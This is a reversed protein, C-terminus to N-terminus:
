QRARGASARPKRPEPPAGNEEHLQREVEAVFLAKRAKRAVKAPPQPPLDPAPLFGTTRLHDVLVKEVLSAVSRMDAAAARALADRTEPSVRVGLPTGKAM